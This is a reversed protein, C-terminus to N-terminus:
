NAFMYGDRLESAAKDNHTHAQVWTKGQFEPENTIDSPEVGLSLADLNDHVGDSCNKCKWYFCFSRVLFIIDDAECKTFYFCLNRTDPRGKELFPGM